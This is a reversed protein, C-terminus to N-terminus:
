PRPDGDITRGIQRGVEALTVREEEAGGTQKGRAIYGVDRQGHYM